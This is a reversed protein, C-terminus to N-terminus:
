GKARKANYAARLEFFDGMDEYNDWIKIQERARLLDNKSYILKGRVVSLYKQDIPLFSVIATNVKNSLAVNNLLDNIVVQYDSKKPKYGPMTMIAIDLDSGDRAYGKAYSGYLYAALVEPRKELIKAIKDLTEKLKKETLKM